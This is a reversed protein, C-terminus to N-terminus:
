NDYIIREISNNYSIASNEIQVSDIRRHNNVKKNFKVSIGM